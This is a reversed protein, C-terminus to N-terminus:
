INEFHSVMHFAIEVSHFLYAYYLTHMISTIRYFIWDARSKEGHTTGESVSSFSLDMVELQRMEMALCM